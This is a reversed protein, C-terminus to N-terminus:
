TPLPATAFDWTGKDEFDYGKALSIAAIKRAAYGENLVTLGYRERLKVFSIDKRPDEFRDTMIDEDIVMVGLEERDCMFMDTTNAGSDHSIMPSVVIQLPAPFLSPVDSYHGSSYSLQTSTSRTGYNPDWAPSMGGPGSVTRFLPGGNAFGFARMSPDRAFILWGMPNMLLTNPIFGDNVLDAYVVYLDDLRLTNNESGNLDRGSTNGHDSAGGANDYAVVANDSILNSVRQEKHRAFARGAAQFLMSMIDWQSYRLVEETIAVCGGTKGMKVTQIGAFRPSELEPYNEGEAMEQVGRMASMAPFTIHTGASFRIPRLLSTLVLRPEVAEKVINSIVRPMLVTIDPTALADVLKKYTIRNEWAEADSKFMARDERRVFGGNRWIAEVYAMKKQLSDSKAMAKLADEGVGRSALMRGVHQEVLKQLSAQDLQVTPLSDENPAM